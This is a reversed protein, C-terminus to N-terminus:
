RITGAPTTEPGAAAGRRSLAGLLQQRENADLAGRWAWLSWLATLATVGGIRIAANGGLGTVVAGTAALLVLSAATRPLRLTTFSAASVLRLRITAGYLLAADLAVRISWAAAAGSIGWARVMLWLVIAHLPLEILHFKATLDPRGSGQLLAQPAYALANLLMGAALLRLATAGQAAFEAGLWLALVDGSLLALAILLPAMLALLYKVSGVLITAIAARGANGRGEAAVGALGAFVPFLTAVLSAPVIGLRTVMEHPASYFGVAAVTVMAGIVFRDVYVLLPSVIGSVTVWGGFSALERLRDPELRLPTRLVPWLRLCATGYAALALVRAITMAAVIGVLSWGLWVGILPILFNGASVPARVWNVLDFRQAAELLGRFTNAVILAPAGAALAVFAWTAEGALAPPIDLLRVLAPAAAALAVGGLVSAALQTVAGVGAAGRLAQHDDRALAEAAFKTTARGLGLDLLNLSALAAWVLGLLGFRQTGLGAAVPPMALVGVVLPLGLGLLNLFSNRALLGAAHRPRAM